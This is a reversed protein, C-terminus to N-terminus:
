EASEFNEDFLSGEAYPLCVTSGEGSIADLFAAEDLGLRQYGWLLLTRRAPSSQAAVWLAESPDVLGHERLLHRYSRAVGFVRRARPSAPELEVDAGSRFVERVPRLLARAVGAADAAGLAHEVASRLLRSVQVPNAARKGETLSLRAMSELSLHRVGLTAAANENPTVVTLDEGATPVAEGLFVHRTM